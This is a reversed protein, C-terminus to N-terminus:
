HDLWYPDTVFRFGHWYTERNAGRVRFCVEGTQGAPVTQTLVLGCASPPAGTGASRSSM